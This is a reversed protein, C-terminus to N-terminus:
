VVIRTFIVFSADLPTKFKKESESTPQRQSVIIYSFTLISITTIIQATIIRTSSFIDLYQYILPLIATLFFLIIQESAKLPLILLLVVIQPYVWYNSFSGNLLMNAWLLSTISIIILKRQILSNKRSPTRPNGFKIIVIASSILLFNLYQGSILYFVTFPILTLVFIGILEFIFKQDIPILLDRYSKIGLFKAIKTIQKIM